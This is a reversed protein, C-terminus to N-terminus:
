MGWINVNIVRRSNSSARNSGSCMYDGQDVPFQLNVLHLTSTKSARTNINATPKTSTETASFRTAQDSRTWTIIPIPLGTSICVIDINTSEHVNVRSDGQVSTM